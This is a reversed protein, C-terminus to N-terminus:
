PCTGGAFGAYLKNLCIHTANGNNMLTCCLPLKTNPDGVTCDGDQHCFRTQGMMTQPDIMPPCDMTSMTCAISNVGMNSLTGCCPNGMCDEPGDCTVTLDGDPCSDMCGGTAMMGSLMACCVQNSPCTQMGCKVGDADLATVYTLDAPPTLDPQVMAMDIAPQAMDIAQAQDATAAMDGTSLTGGGCGAVTICLTLFLRM